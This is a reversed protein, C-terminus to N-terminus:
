RLEDLRLGTTTLWEFFAPVQEAPVDAYIHLTIYKRDDVPRGYADFFAIRDDDEAAMWLTDDNLDRVGSIRVMGAPINLPADDQNHYITM